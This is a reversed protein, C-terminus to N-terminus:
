QAVPQVGCITLEPENNNISRPPIRSNDSSSRPPAPFHRQWNSKACIQAVTAAIAIPAIRSSIGHIAFYSKPHRVLPVLQDSRAAHHVHAAFPQQKECILSQGGALPQLHRDTPRRLEVVLAGQLQDRAALHHARPRAHGRHRDLLVLKSRQAPATQRDSDACDHVVAAPPSRPTTTSVSNTRLLKIEEEKM